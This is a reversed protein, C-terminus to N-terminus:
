SVTRDWDSTLRITKGLRGPRRVAADIWLENCTTGIIAISCHESEACDEAGDLEVLFTSLVRDLTGETTPDNGRVAAVNELGDMVIICPSARRAAQFLYHVAKESGGLEKHILSTCSVDLLKVSPSMWAAYKACHRALASKGSCSPGALLVGGALARKAGSGSCDLIGDLERSRCLPIAITAQLDKWAAAAASGRFPFGEGHVFEAGDVTYLLDRVSLVRMDVYNDLEGGRLSVPTLSTLREKVNMLVDLAFVFPSSAVCTGTLAHRCCQVIEAYSRGATSVVISDLLDRLSPSRDPDPVGDLQERIDLVDVLLDRRADDGPLELYFVYDFRWSLVTSHEKSTCLLLVSSDAPVAGRAYDIAALFSRRWRITTSANEDGATGLLHEIDDLILISKGSCSICADLVTV